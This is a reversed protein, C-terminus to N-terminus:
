LDPDIQTPYLQQPGEVHSFYAKTLSDSARGLLNVVRALRQDLERNVSTAAVEVLSATDSLRLQSVAELISRQEDSLRGYQKDRPLTDVHKQLRDVQYLLSRPNIDDFLILELVAQQELYARYRRRYTILSENTILVAELLQYEIGEDAKPVLTSRLLSSLLLGRELRRGIELFVWGQERTMSEKTLGTFAALSVILRDLQDQVQDFKADAPAPTMTWVEEIDDIVRWTDTSWLDRVAYAAQTMYKLTLVLSGVRDKNFVLDLLEDRPKDLRQESGAQVFGPYTATLHTLARLLAHLCGTSAPDRFEQSENYKQLVTRLLRTTAEAREAYRGVWYLNEVARSPLSSRGAAIVPEGATHQWLSVQKEPESALVWTDKSIGGSQNSVVFNGRDPGTRTLGGPMVKYDGDRAVLFSRLVAHRPELRGELLSPATSISILEQGMFVHPRAKIRAKLTERDKKSLQDGFVPRSAPHRYIPKIVLKDINNLVYDRERPHGCWWTAVSPIRLEQGLLHRCIGPLFALLAPNELVSSGLPNVVSVNGQRAAQLLGPVGLQSDKRLEVPDCFHDDVRRLIADVPQLGDLSKLWVRENRVTLDAGQVLTYGLYAALYAHEFYTENRPGPTLVVINPDEKNNPAVAALAGRLARFFVALRHVHCDRFLSPLIRGMAMRNELAYGAGSPAQTRDGLVWMNGDPGRALDAAYTILQHEGPLKVQDCPRLFGPHGYVLELPILGKRILERRDYLDNLILNLLEARQILGSEIGAWEDSGILLPIPDLEWPRHLGEPDGYVNYTVGNERLLRRGELRRRELETAGLARLSATFYEWQPRLRGDQAWMEDFCGPEPPYSHCLENNEIEDPLKMQGIKM